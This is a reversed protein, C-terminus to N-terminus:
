SDRTLQRYRMLAELCFGTTIEESGWVPKAGYISIYLPHRSWEGQAGQSDLLFRIARPLVPSQSRWNLLSCVALATDLGHEGISGNPRATREIREVVTARISDFATLGAYYNRSVAYYLMLKSVYWRDGFDEQERLSMEILYDIVPRTLASEGLYFLVNANIVSDVNNPSWSKSLDPESSCWFYYPHRAVFGKTLAVRWFNLNLPPWAFRPAIWTYFLGWRNRNALLLERNPPFEIGNRRLVDSVYATDDVDPPVVKLAGPEAAGHSWVGCEQMQDLLFRTAKRTIEDADSAASFSLSYAIVATPFVSDRARLETKMTQDPTSYINFMGSPTQAGRLFSLGRAIAEDIENGNFM